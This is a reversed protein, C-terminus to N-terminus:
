SRKFLLRIGFLTLIIVAIGTLDVLFRGVKGLLSGSHLDTIVRSWTFGAEDILADRLDDRQEEGSKLASWAIEMEGERKGFDFLDETVFEEGSELAIVVKTGESLGIAKVPLGPLSEEGLRDLYVGQADYVFLAERTAIVLEAPKAVAGVLTGSQELLKGHQMQAASDDALTQM